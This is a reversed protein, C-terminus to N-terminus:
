QVTPGGIKEAGPPVPIKLDIKRSPCTPNRKEHDAGMIEASAKVWVVVDEEDRAPVEVPIENLGCQKCTYFCTIKINM